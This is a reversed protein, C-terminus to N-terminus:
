ELGLEKRSLVGERVVEPPGEVVRVVTSPLGGERIGDDVVLDIMHAREGFQELIADVTSQTQMGSINASTTTFPYGFSHALALCFPDNPIRVGVTGDHALYAPYTDKTRVVITLPGPLHREMLTRAEPTVVAYQEVVASNAMIASIFKGEDRGKLEYLKKLAEENRVDVALGYLTDTPYLVIGGNSLILAADHAAQEYGVDNVRVLQM